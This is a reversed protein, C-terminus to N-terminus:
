DGMRVYISQTTALTVNHAAEQTDNQSLRSFLVAMKIFASDSHHILKAADCINFLWLEM